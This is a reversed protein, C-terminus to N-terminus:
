LMKYLKVCVVVSIIVLIVMIILPAIQATATWPNSMVLRWYEGYNKTWYFLDGTEVMKTMMTLYFNYFVNVM